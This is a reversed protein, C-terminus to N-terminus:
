KKLSKQWLSDLRQATLKERATQNFHHRLEDPLNRVAWSETWKKNKIAEIVKAKDTDIEGFDIMVVDGVDDVGFNISFNFVKDSLGYTWLSMITDLYDDILDKAEDTEMGKFLNYIVNVKDQTHSGDAEFRPNALWPALGPYKHILEKVKKEGLERDQIAVEAKAKATKKDEGWNLYISETDKRSQPVKKVKNDGVEYVKYQVGQDIFKLGKAEPKRDPSQLEEVPVITVSEQVPSSLGTRDKQRSREDLTIRGKLMQEDSFFKQNGSEDKAIVGSGLSSSTHPEFASFSEPGKENM